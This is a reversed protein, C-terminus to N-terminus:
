KVTKQDVVLTKMASNPTPAGENVPSVWPQQTPRSHWPRTAATPRSSSPLASTGRATWFFVYIHLAMRVDDGRCLRLSSILHRADTPQPETLQRWNNRRWRPHFIVIDHM